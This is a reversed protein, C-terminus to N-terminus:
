AARSLPQRSARQAAELRELARELRSPSVAAGLSALEARAASLERDASEHPATDGTVPKAILATATRIDHTM